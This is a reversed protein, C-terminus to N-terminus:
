RRKKLYKKVKSRSICRGTKPHAITGPQCSSVKPSAQGFCPGPDCAQCVPGSSLNLCFTGSPCRVNACTITPEPEGCADPNTMISGDPCLPVLASTPTTYSLSAVILFFCFSGLLGASLIMKKLM